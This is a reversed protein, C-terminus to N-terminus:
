ALGRWRGGVKAGTPRRSDSAGLGPWDPLLPRPEGRPNGDAQYDKDTDRAGVGPARPARLRQGADLLVRGSVGVRGPVLAEACGDTHTGQGNRNRDVLVADPHRALVTRRHTM